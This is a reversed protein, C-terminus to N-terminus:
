DKLPDRGRLLRVTGEHGGNDIRAYHGTAYYDADLELAKRLMIDWKLKTNCMVCPNPTRGSLYEQIFDQIVISDFQKQLDITYHPINLQACVTKANNIADVSCCGSENHVNGGVHEYEWLKMTMGIVEYGEDVLLAAATSSDVGGSMAIIVRKRSM